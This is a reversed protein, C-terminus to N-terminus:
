APFMCLVYLWSVRRPFAVYVCRASVVYVCCVCCVTRTLFVCGVRMMCRVCVCLFFVVYACLVSVHVCRLRLMWLVHVIYLGFVGCV